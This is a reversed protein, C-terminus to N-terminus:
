KDEEDKGKKREREIDINEVRSHTHARLQVECREMVEMHGDLPVPFNQQYTATYKHAVHGLEFVGWSHCPVM